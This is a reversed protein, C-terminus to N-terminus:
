TVEVFSRAWHDRRDKVLVIDFSPNRGTSTQSKTFPDNPCSLTGLDADFAYAGGSFCTHTVCSLKALRQTSNSGITSQLTYKECIRSNCQQQSQTQYESEQVLALIEQTHQFSLSMRLQEGPVERPLQFFCACRAPFCGQFEDEYEYNVMAYDYWPGGGRYNPHARLRTTHEQVNLPLVLETYIPIALQYEPDLELQRNYWRGLQHNFWKSLPRPFVVQESEKLNPRNVDKALFFGWTEGKFLYVYKKGIALAAHLPEPNDDSGLTMQEPQDKLPSLTSALGLLYAQHSNQCVQQRFTHDGRNQATAAPLKAWKKLGREGTDTNFSAPPGKFLHEMLFHNCEVFKQIKFQRSNDMRKLGKTLLTMMREFNTQYACINADLDSHLMDAGYKLFSHFSLMLEVLELFQDMDLAITCDERASSIDVANDHETSHLLLECIHQPWDWVDDSTQPFHEVCDAPNLYDLSIDGFIGVPDEMQGLLLLKDFLNTKVMFRDLVLKAQQWHQTPLIRKMQEVTDLLQLQQLIIRQEVLNYITRAQPQVISHENSSDSEEDVASSVSSDDRVTVEQQGLSEWIRQRKTQNPASSSRLERREDFDEAFRNAFLTRGPTTNMLLAVVFLQGVRESSSLLTLSCFGRNFSVRPFFRSFSSRNGGGTCWLTEVANDIAKVDKGPLPHLLISIVHNLIGSEFSHMIDAATATNICSTRPGLDMGHFANILCHSGLSRSLLQDAISSRKRVLTEKESATIPHPLRLTVWQQFNTSRYAPDDQGYLCSLAAVTLKRELSTPFRVCKHPVADCNVFPTLCCRSMRVSTPGTNAIKGCLLNQSLNDGNVSVIPCIVKMAKITDGRRFMMVPREKQLLKLHGLVCALCRHYNRQSTSRKPVPITSCHGKNTPIKPIYGM